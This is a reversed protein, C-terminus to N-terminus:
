QGVMVTWFFEGELSGIHGRQVTQYAPKMFPSSSRPPLVLGQGTAERAAQARESISAACKEHIGGGGPYARQSTVTLVYQGVM